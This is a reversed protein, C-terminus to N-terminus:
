MVGHFVNGMSVAENSYHSSISSCVTMYDCMTWMMEVFHMYGRWQKCTTTQILRMPKTSWVKNYVSERTDCSQPALPDKAPACECVCASVNVCFLFVSAQVSWIWRQVPVRLPHGEMVVAENLVAICSTTLRHIVCTGFATAYVGGTFRFVVRVLGCLEGPWLPKLEPIDSWTSAISWGNDLLM